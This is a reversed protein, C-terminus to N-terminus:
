APRRRQTRWHKNKRRERAIYRQLTRREIGLVQAALTINGECALLVLGIHEREVTALYAHVARKIGLRRRVDVLTPAPWRKKM